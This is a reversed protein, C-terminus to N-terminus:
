TLIEYFAKTNNYIQDIDAKNLDSDYVWRLGTSFEPSAQGYSFNINGGIVARNNDSDAINRLTPTPDSSTGSEVYFNVETTEEESTGNSASAIYVREDATQSNGKGSRVALFYWTSGSVFAQPHDNSPGSDAERCYIKTRRNNTGTGGQSYQNVILQGNTYFADAQTNNAFSGCVIRCNTAIQYGSYGTTSDINEDYAMSDAHFFVANSVRLKLQADTAFSATFVDPDGAISENWESYTRVYDPKWWGCIWFFGSSAPPVNYAENVNRDTFRLLHNRDVQMYFAGSTYGNGYTKPQDKDNLLEAKVNASPYDSPISSANKTDLTCYLKQPDFRFVMSKSEYGDFGVLNFSSTQLSASPGHEGVVARYKALSINTSETKGFLSPIDSLNIQAM